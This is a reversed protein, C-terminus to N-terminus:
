SDVNAEVRTLRLLLYQVVPLQGNEAAVDFPTEGLANPLCPNCGSNILVKVCDLHEEWNAWSNSLVRHLPTDGNAAIVHM